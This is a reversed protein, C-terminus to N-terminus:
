TWWVPWRHGGGALGSAPERPLLLRVGNGETQLTTGEQLSEDGMGKPEGGAAKAGPDTWGADVAALLCGM